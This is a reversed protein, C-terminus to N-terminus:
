YMEYTKSKIADYLIDKEFQRNYLLKRQNLIINKITPLLVEKPSVDGKNLYNKVFFLYVGLSDEIEFFQSKKIYRNYNEQNLFRAEYFLNSKNIWVTDALIHNTFQFSLSDLYYRDNLDFRQFSRKIEKIDVNDPPLQIFRVQFLPANLKFISRNEFLFSDIEKSSIITDISKNIVTQKYTNSYLDIKYQEILVDLDEIVNTKLNIEAQQLLIEKRAWQDIYNRTKLLSDEMNVFLDLEKELDTKYLYVTGVRAIVEEKSVTFRDCSVCVIFCSFVMLKLGVSSRTVSFGFFIAKKNVIKITKKLLVQLLSYIM